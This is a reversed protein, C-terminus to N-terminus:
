VVIAQWHAVGTAVWEAVPIGWGAVVWVVHVLVLHLVHWGSSGELGHAQVGGRELWEGWGSVVHGLAQLLVAHLVLIFHGLVLVQERFEFLAM